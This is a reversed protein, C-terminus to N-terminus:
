EDEDDRDSVRILKGDKYKEVTLLKGAENYTKTKGNRLGNKVKIEQFVIKNKYYVVTLGSYPKNDKKSVFRESRIDGAVYQRYIEIQQERFFCFWDGELHQDDRTGKCLVSGNNAAISFPGDPIVLPGVDKLSDSQYGAISLILHPYDTENAQRPIRFQQTFHLLDTSRDAKTLVWDGKESLREMTFPNKNAATELVKTKQWKDSKFQSTSLPYGTNYYIVLDGHKANKEFNIEAVKNKANYDSYYSWQGSRLDNNYLGAAMKINAGAIMNSDAVRELFRGNKKGNAYHGKVVVQNNESLAEYPGDLQGNSFNANTVSRSLRYEICSDKVIPQDAHQPCPMKLEILKAYYKAAGNLVNNKYTLSMEPEGSFSYPKGEKDLLVDFYYNWKGDKLDDKYGGSARIGGFLNFETTIGNRKDDIYTGSEILSSRTTDSINLNILDFVSLLYKLYKGTKIDRSYNCFELTDGHLEMASGYKKGQVYNHVVTTDKKGDNNAYISVWKGHKEGDHFAGTTIFSGEEDYDIYMAEGQEMNDRFNRVAKTRGDLDFNKLTGDLKGKLYSGKYVVQDQLYGQFEGERLDNKYQGKEIIGEDDYSTYPGNRIDNTYHFIEVLEGADYRKAEGEKKDNIYNAELALAGDADYEFYAGQKKGNAFNMRKTIVGAANRLIVEGEPKGFKLTGELNGGEDTEINLDFVEQEEILFKRSILVHYTNSTGEWSYEDRNSSTYTRAEFRKSDYLTVLANDEIETGTKTFGNSAMTSLMKRFLDQSSLQLSIEKPEQEDLYLSLWGQAKDEYYSKRYAFQVKTYEDIGGRESAYFTWGKRILLDHLTTFGKSSLANTMEKVSINQALSQKICLGFSLMGVVLWVLKQSAHMRMFFSIANSSRPTLNYM